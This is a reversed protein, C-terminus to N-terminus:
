GNSLHVIGQTVHMLYCSGQLTVMQRQYAYCRVKLQLVIYHYTLYQVAVHYFCDQVEFHYSGWSASTATTRQDLQSIGTSGENSDFESSNSPVFFINSLQKM